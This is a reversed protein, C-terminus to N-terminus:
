CSCPQSRFTDWSGEGHRPSKVGGANNYQDWLPREPSISRYLWKGFNKLAIGLAQMIFFTMGTNKPSPVRATCDRSHAYNWVYRLYYLYAVIQPQTYLLGLIPLAFPGLFPIESELM